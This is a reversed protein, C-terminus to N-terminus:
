DNHKIQKICHGGEFVWTEKPTEIKSKKAAVKGEKYVLIGEHTKVLKDDEWNKYCFVFTGDVISVNPHFNFLHTDCWLVRGRIVTEHEHRFFISRMYHGRCFHHIEVDDYEVDRQRKIEKGTMYAQIDPKQNTLIYKWVDRPLTRM